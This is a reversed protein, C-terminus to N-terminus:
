YVLFISGCFVRPDLGSPMRSVRLHLGALVPNVEQGFSDNAASQRHEVRQSSSKKLFHIFVSQHVLQALRPEGDRLLMGHNNSVIPDHDPFISNVQEDFVDDEDLQLHRLRDVINM